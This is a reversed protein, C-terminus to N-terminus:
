PPEVRCRHRLDQGRPGEPGRLSQLWEHETGQFGQEVAVGYASRGDRGDRGHKRALALGELRERAERMYGDELVLDFRWFVSSTAVSM